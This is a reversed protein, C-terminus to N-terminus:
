GSIDPYYMIRKIITLM